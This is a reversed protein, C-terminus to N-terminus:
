HQTRLWQIFVDRRPHPAPDDKPLALYYGYNGGDGEALATLRGSLLDQEVLIRAQISCGHGARVAALAMGNSPMEVVNLSDFALGLRKGWVLQERTAESFFWRCTRLWPMLPTEAPRAAEPGGVVVFPSMVLATATLGPWNGAGFRIALDPGAGGPAVLETSPQFALAVDPQRTWFDGLRPMLWSEAFSPTLTVRVPRQGARNAVAAVGAAIRGFGDGLAAALAAGDATARVGQSTRELLTQGLRTELTRVHQAIAAHTVNLERAAASFGGTRAAAEFARLAALSPM